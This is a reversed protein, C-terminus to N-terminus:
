LLLDFIKPKVLPNTKVEEFLLPVFRRSFAEIRPKEQLSLFNIGGVSGTDADKLWM